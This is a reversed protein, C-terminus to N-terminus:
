LDKKECVYYLTYIWGFLLTWFLKPHTPKDKHHVWWYILPFSIVLFTILLMSLRGMIIYDLYTTVADHANTSNAYITNFDQSLSYWCGLIGLVFLCFYWKKM